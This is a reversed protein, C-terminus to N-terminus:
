NSLVFYRHSPLKYIAEMRIQGEDKTSVVQQLVLQSARILNPHKCKRLLKGSAKDFQSRSM